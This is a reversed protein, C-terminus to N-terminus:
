EGMKTQTRWTIEKGLTERGFSQISTCREEGGYASCEGGM